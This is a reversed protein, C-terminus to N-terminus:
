IGSNNKIEENGNELKYLLDFVKNELEPNEEVEKNIKIYIDLIDKFQVNENDNVGLLLMAIQKGIDNIFYHTDVTYGEFKLLRVLSDSILANRARGVHPSANPNISTHEILAKKGTGKSNSGYKNGKRRIETLIDKIFYDRDM